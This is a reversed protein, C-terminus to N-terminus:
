QKRRRGMVGAGLLGIGLLALTAPEPVVNLTYDFDSRVGWDPHLGAGGLVDGSGVMDTKGDGACAFVSGCAAGLNQENVIRGTNNVLLSLAYNFTAVKSAGGLLKAGGFNDSGISYWEDDADAMGFTAWHAGNTAAAVCSATGGCTVVDFDNSPDVFFAALAGAGYTATFTASPGFQMLYTSGFLLVKGVLEIEVVGTLEPEGGGSLVVSPYFSNGDTIKVIEVVSRLKDGVDLIGNSNSDIHQDLNDDELISNQFLSFASASNALGLALCIAIGLSKMKM